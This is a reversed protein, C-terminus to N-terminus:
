FCKSKDYALSNWLESTLSEPNKVVSVPDRVCAQTLTGQYVLLLLLAMISVGYLIYCYLGQLGQLSKVIQNIVRRLGFVIAGIKLIRLEGLLPICYLGCGFTASWISCFSCRLQLSLSRLRANSKYGVWCNTYHPGALEVSRTFLLIQAVCLRPGCNECYIGPFLHGSISTQILPHPIM